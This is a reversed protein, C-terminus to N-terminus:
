KMPTIRLNAFDGDSTNGVWLGVRGRDLSGLKRVELAPTKVPGVFIQITQGKVVVRLPVWETPSVSPDVPNEFEEPFEKRLRPWDYDPLSIYQVAHQHRAPDEARFNFPRLYVAEYTNDDKGHFAVGLFSQGMVDKGRVDLEIAGQAFDTGEIWIVGNGPKADLHVGRRGGTLATAERNVGRLKGVTLREALDIQQTSTPQQPSEGSVSAALVVATMMAIPYSFSERM